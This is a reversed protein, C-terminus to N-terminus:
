RAPTSVESWQLGRLPDWYAPSQDTAPRGREARVAHLENMRYHLQTSPAEVPTASVTWRQSDADQVRYRYGGVEGSALKRTILGALELEELSAAFRREGAARTMRFRNQAHGIRQLTRLPDSYVRADIRRQGVQLFASMAVVALVSTLLMAVLSYVRHRTKRREDSM